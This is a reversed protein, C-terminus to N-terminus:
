SQTEQYHNRTYMSSNKLWSPWVLSRLTKGIEPRAESSEGDFLSLLLAGRAITELNRENWWSQIDPDVAYSCSAQLANNKTIEECVRGKFNVTKYLGFRLFGTCPLCVWCNKYQFFCSIIYTRRRTIQGVQLTFLVSIDTVYICSCLFSIHSEHASTANKCWIFKSRPKQCFGLCCWFFFFFFPPRWRAHVAAKNGRSWCQHQHDGIIFHKRTM